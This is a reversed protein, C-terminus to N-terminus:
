TLYLNAQEFYSCTTRLCLKQTINTNEHRLRNSSIKCYNHETKFSFHEMCPYRESTMAAQSPLQRHRISVFLNNHRDVVACSFVRGGATPATPKPAPGSTCCSRDGAVMLLCSSVLSTTWGTVHISVFIIKFYMCKPNVITPTRTRSTM